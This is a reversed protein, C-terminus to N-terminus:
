SSDIFGESWNMYKFINVEINMSALYGCKNTIIACTLACEEGHENRIAELQGRIAERM